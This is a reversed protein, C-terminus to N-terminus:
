VVLEAATIRRTLLVPCRLRSMVQHAVSSLLLGAFDSPRRSGLVVLDAGIREATSVIPSVVSHSVVSGGDAEVGRATLAELARRITAQARADSEVIPTAEDSIVQQVHLVFVKAGFMSAIDAAEATVEDSIASGDIAILVTEPEIPGAASARIVLVPAELGTAVAHSVSGHFLASLDSRGHSGIAILDAEAQQAARTIVSELKEGRHMLRVEGEAEAGEAELREVVSKVLRRTAGDPTAPDICHVHLVRVPAKSRRAYAAVVPVAAALAEDDDVAFLIRGYM